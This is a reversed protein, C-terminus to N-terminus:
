SSTITPFHIAKLFYVPVTFAQTNESNFCKSKNNEYYILLVVFIITIHHQNKIRIELVTTVFIYLYMSENDDWEWNHLALILM